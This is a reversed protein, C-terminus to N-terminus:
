GRQNQSFIESSQMGDKLLFNYLILNHLKTGLFGDLVFMTRSTFSFKEMTQTFILHTTALPGWGKKPWPGHFHISVSERDM